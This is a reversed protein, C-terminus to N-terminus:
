VVLVPLKESIYTEPADPTLEKGLVLAKLTTSFDSSFIPELDAKVAHKVTQAKIRGIGTM